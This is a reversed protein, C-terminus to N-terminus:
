SGGASAQVHAAETLFRKLHFEGYEWFDTDLSSIAVQLFGWLSERMDSVLRMRRLRQLDEPRAEGFYLTLLRDEGHANLNHNVALNGLDFFRDGMGAYEWDILTMRSGKDIFNAPLLDNHCPVPPEDTGLDRELEALLTLAGAMDPPFILGRELALSHYSRVTHFPSFHGAGPASDHYRRIATVMRRLVDARTASQPTVPEGEAFRSLMAGDDPLFAVVESGVGIKAAAAACRYEIERDIGLLSTLEGAIRLVFTGSAADVRFNLNTLGGSLPAVNEVAGVIPSIRSLVADLRELM